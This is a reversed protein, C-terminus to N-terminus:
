LKLADTWQQLQLRGVTVTMNSDGMKISNYIQDLFLSPPLHLSLFPCTNLPFLPNRSSLRIVNLSVYDLRQKKM